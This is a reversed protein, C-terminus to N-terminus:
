ASRVSGGGQIGTQVPIVSSRQRQLPPERVAGGHNWIGDARIHGQWGQCGICGRNAHICRLVIYRFWFCRCEPWVVRSARPTATESPLLSCVTSAWRFRMSVVGAIRRLYRSPTSSDSSSNSDGLLGSMDMMSLYWMPQTSSLPFGVGRLWPFRSRGERQMNAQSATPPSGSCARGTAAASSSTWLKERMWSSM